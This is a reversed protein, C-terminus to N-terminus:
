LGTPLSTLKTAFKNSIAFAVGAVRRGGARGSWFFTYEKEQVQGQRELRTEQLAAIDIKYRHLEKAIMATRRESRTDADDNDLM